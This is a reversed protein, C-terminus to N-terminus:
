KGAPLFSPAEDPFFRDIKRRGNVPVKKWRGQSDRYEVKILVSDGGVMVVGRADTVKLPLPMDVSAITFYFDNSSGVQKKFYFGYFDKHKWWPGDPGFLHFGHERTV